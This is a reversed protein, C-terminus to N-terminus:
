RTRARPDLAAVTLDALVNAVVVLLSFVLVVGQVVVIDHNGVSRLMLAGMGPLNFIAEIVVVGGLTFIFGLSAITAVPVAANRLVHKGLIRWRRVGAAALTRVYDRGLADLVASRTQFAVQAMFGLGVAITPLVLHLVWEWPSEMLGVYGTAPFVRIKIALVSVLGAALWFNPVAM